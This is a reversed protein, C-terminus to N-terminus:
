LSLVRPTPTQQLHSNEPPPEEDLWTDVIILSILGIAVIVAIAIAWNLWAKGLKEERIQAKRERKRKYEVSDKERLHFQVDCHPCMVDQGLMDYPTELEHGNPCPIHLLPEEEPEPATQPAAAQDANVSITPGAPQAEPQAAPSPAPHPTPTAAPAATPAIPAPIIFLIGCTPCNVQQGADQPEGELLHGHPCQFQFTM